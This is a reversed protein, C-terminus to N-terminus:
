QRGLHLVEDPLPIHYLTAESDSVLFLIKNARDAAIGEVDNLGHSYVALTEGETNLIFVARSEDSALWIVDDVEDYWLGAMSIGRGPTLAGFNMERSQIIEGEPTIELFLRPNRKNVAYFNFTEPHITLGEIGNNLQNAPIDLEIRALTYGLTDINVLARQREEALWLSFNGPHHAISEVDEGQYRDLVKLVEGSRTVKYVSDGPNDGVIWLDPGGTADTSIGSPDGIDLPFSAQAGITEIHNASGPSPVTFPLIFTTNFGDFRYRGTSITPHNYLETFDIFDIIVEDPGIVSLRGAEGTLEIGANLSGAFEESDPRMWVVLYEDPQIIVEDPLRYTGNLNSYSLSWNMLSVPENTTNYLEVWGYTEDASKSHLVEQVPGMIESIIVAGMDVSEPPKIINDTCSLAAM